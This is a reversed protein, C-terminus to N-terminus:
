RRSLSHLQRLKSTVTTYDMDHNAFSMKIWLDKVKKYLSTLNQLPTYPIAKYNAASTKQALLIEVGENIAVLSDNLATVLYNRFAIDLHIASFHFGSSTFAMPSDGVSWTWDEYARKNAESYSIQNRVVGGLLLATQM